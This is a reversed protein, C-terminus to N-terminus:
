GYTRTKGRKIRKNRSQAFTEMASRDVDELGKARLQAAKREEPTPNPLPPLNLSDFIEKYKQQAQKLLKYVGKIQGEYLVYYKGDDPVNSTGQEISLNKVRDNRQHYPM